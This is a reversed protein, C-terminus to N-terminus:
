QSVSGKQEMWELYMRRNVDGQKGGPNWDDAEHEEKTQMVHFMAHDADTVMTAQYHEPDRRWIERIFWLDEFGRGAFREDFRLDGLYDRHISFQSNGFPLGETDHMGPLNHGEHALEFSDYQSFRNRMIAELDVPSADLLSIVSNPLKRVRYCIRPRDPSCHYGTDLFMRGVIADADLFTLTEGRAMAIGLNLCRPKNFLKSKDWCEVVRCEYEPEPRVASLNDVVIIEYDTIGTARCSHDISWLCWKLYRNRNRHPIIISHRM